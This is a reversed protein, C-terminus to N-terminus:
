GAPLRTPVSWTVGDQGTVVCRATTPCTVFISFTDRGYKGGDVWGNGTWVAPAQSNTYPHVGVCFTPSVCDLDSLRYSPGFWDAQVLTWRTGDWRATAGSDVVALCMTSTPCSLVVSYAGTLAAPMRARTSWRSGNWTSYTGNYAVAMCSTSSTCRLSGVPAADELGLFPSGAAVWSTGTFRWARGADDLVLCSTPSSCSPRGLTRDSPAKGAAGWAGNTYTRYVKGEDQIALCFGSPLCDVDTPNSFQKSPRTWTTGDFRYLWGNRDFGMCLTASVCSPALMMGYTEVFTSQTRWGTASTWRYHRGRDDVAHCTTARRPCSLGTPRNLPYTVQSMRSWASGTWRTGKGFYEVGWCLTRSACSLREDTTVGSPYALRKTWTTGSVTWYGFGSTATCWSSTPCDIEGVNFGASALSATSWRGSALTARWSSFTPQYVGVAFCRGTIQCSVDHFAVGRLSSLYTPTSWRTGSLVSARSDNTLAVCWGVKTCDLSLFRGSSPQPTQQPTSWAGAEYRQFGEPGIALCWGAAPCSLKWTTQGTAARARAPASWRTGNLVQYQGSRDLSMCWTTTPCALVDPAGVEPDPLAYTWSLSTTPSITRPTGSGTAAVTTVDYRYRREPTLGTDLLESGTGSYVVVGEAPDAPGGSRTVRVGVLEPDTPLTWRLRVSDTAVDASLGTVPAVLFTRTDRGRPLRAPRHDADYTHSRYCYRTGRALGEDVWSTTGRAVEVEREVTDTSTCSHRQIRLGAVRPDTPLTWSLTVSTTGPAPLLSAGPLDLTWATRSVPPSWQGAADQTFVSYAYRDVWDLGEDVVSSLLGSAVEVGEDPSAPPTQGTVRRVVVRSLDPDSPLVWTLRISDVDGVPSLSTVPAPPPDDVATVSTPAAPAPSPPAAAATPSSLALAATLLAATLALARPTRSM